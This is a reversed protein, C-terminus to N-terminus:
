EYGSIYHRKHHLASRLSKHKDLAAFIPCAITTEPSNMWIIMNPSEATM